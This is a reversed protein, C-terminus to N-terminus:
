LLTDTDTYEKGAIRVKGAGRDILFMEEGDVFLNYRTLSFTIEHESASGIELAVEPIKLPVGKLFAKCGVNKTTGNADTVTQIWRIELPQMEPTILSRLGKDLGIKTIAAEMSEIIGWLPMTYTGMMSVDVTM